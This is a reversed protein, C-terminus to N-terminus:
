RCQSVEQIARAVLIKCLAKRYEASAKTNASFTLEEAALDGAAQATLNGESMASSANVAIQAAMPRAGVVIRWQGGLQSVAVNLLSYDSAANRFGQFSAKRGDKRLIIKTLIDKAYPKKLFETLPM